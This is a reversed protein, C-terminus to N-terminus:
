NSHKAVNPLKCKQTKIDNYRIIHRIVYHVWCITAIEIKKVVDYGENGLLIRMSVYIDCEM